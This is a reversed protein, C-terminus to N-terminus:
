DAFAIALPISSGIVVNVRGTTTELEITGGGAAITTRIEKIGESARKEDWDLPYIIGSYHLEVRM